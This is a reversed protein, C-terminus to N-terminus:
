YKREPKCQVFPDGILGSPCSCIPNHNIVQCRAKIGCIGICPDSCKQNICARNQPCESSVVCEPRCGPPTGIYNTQCSCVAHDNVNKCVSYPGCPSPECPNQPIEDM